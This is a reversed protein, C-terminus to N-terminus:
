KPKGWQWRPKEGTKVCVWLLIVGGMVLNFFFWFFDEGRPEDGTGLAMGNGVVFVLYVAIVLWGQWTAPVWGWGYSKRTFWYTKPREKKASITHPSM